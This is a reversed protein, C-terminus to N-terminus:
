PNQRDFEKIVSDTVDLAPQYYLVIRILAENGKDLIATYGEKQAVAKAATAIKQAYEAVMERQKQQVERNFEQLRRQYAEMKSRLQEEKEQRAQDTLKANPDQLSQDLDKLEQEDANIIKQRTMSYGKVDELALKGGKTREMVTQQDMVGVRVAEGAHLPEVWQALSWAAVVVVVRVARTM